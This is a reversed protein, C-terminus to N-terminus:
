RERFGQHKPFSRATKTRLPLWSTYAASYRSPSPPSSGSASASRLRSRAGQVLLDRVLYEDLSNSVGHDQMDTLAPPMWCKAPRSLFTLSIAPIWVSAAHPPHGEGSGTGQCRPNCEAVGSKLVNYTDVLSYATMRIFIRMPAQLSRVRMDFMQVWSHAMTGGAPMKYDRDSLVCATGQAAASTPLAPVSSLATLLGTCPPLRVGLVTRGEAARAIRNAKTAILTQHNITLLIMTEVFQAQIM